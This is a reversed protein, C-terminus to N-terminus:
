TLKRDRQAERLYRLAFWGIALFIALAIVQSTKVIQKHKVIFTSVTKKLYAADMQDPQSTYFEISYTVEDYPVIAKYELSSIKGKYEATELWGWANRGDIELSELPSYDGQPYREELNDRAAQADERTASGAFETITIGSYPESMRAYARQSRKERNPFVLRAASANPDYAFGAPPNPIQPGERRQTSTDCGVLLLVAILTIAAVASSRVLHDSM